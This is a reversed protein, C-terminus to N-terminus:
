SQSESEERRAYSTFAALFEPTLWIRVSRRGSRDRLHEKKFPSPSHTAKAAREIQGIAPGLGRPEIHADACLRASDLSQGNAQILAKLITSPVGSLKSLATRASTPTWRQASNLQAGNREVSSVGDQGDRNVVATASKRSLLVKLAETLQETTDLEIVAGDPMTIKPM